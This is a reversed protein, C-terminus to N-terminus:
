FVKRRRMEQKRDDGERNEIGFQIREKVALNARFEM